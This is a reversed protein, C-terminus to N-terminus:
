KCNREEVWHDRIGAEISVITGGEEQGSDVGSSVAEGGWGATGAM